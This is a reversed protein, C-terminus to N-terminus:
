ENNALESRDYKYQATSHQIHHQKTASKNASKNASAIEADKTIFVLVRTFLKLVYVEFNTGLAGGGRGRGGGAEKEM